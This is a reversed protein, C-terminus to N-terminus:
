VGSHSATIEYRLFLHDDSRRVSVLRADSLGPPDFAVGDVVGPRGVDGDRGAIVPSVTLFLSDVVGAGLLAGFLRPGGETLIRRAGRAHLERQLAVLDVDDEGFAIVECSRELAPGHVRAGEATTAVLSGALGPHDADLDGSRSIVVLKPDAQVGARKRMTSYADSAAPYAAESTWRAEPHARITGAGVLVADASARLAGMVFRDAASGKSIDASSRQRSRIAAVGDISAVFNAFTTEPGLDLPGGYLREVEDTPAVSARADSLVELGDFPRDTV